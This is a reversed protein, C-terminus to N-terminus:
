IQNQPTGSVMMKPMETETTPPPCERRGGPIPGAAVGLRPAAHHKGAAVVRQVVAVHRHQAEQGAAVAVLGGQCGCIWKKSGLRQPIHASLQLVNYYNIAIVISPGIAHLCRCLRLALM